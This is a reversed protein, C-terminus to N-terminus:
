PVREIIAAEHGSENPRTKGSKRVLGRDILETIRPRIALINKNLRAAIEDATGPLRRIEALARDRLTGARPEMAKAAAESTGGREKYGPTDPYVKDGLLDKMRGM